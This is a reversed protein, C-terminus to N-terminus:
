DVKRTCHTKQLPARGYPATRLLRHTKRVNHIYTYRQVPPAGLRGRPAQRVGVAM